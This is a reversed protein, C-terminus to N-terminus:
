RLHMESEYILPDGETRHVPDANGYFSGGLIGALEYCYVQCPVAALLPSLEEALEGSFAPLTYLWDAEEDSPEVSRDDTVLALPAGLHILSRQLEAARGSSAGAPAFMMVPTNPGVMSYQDHAYEEAEQAMAVLQPVEYLKRAAFRATAVNPGPGLMLHALRRDATASAHGPALEWVRELTSALLAPLGEINSRVAAARRTSPAWEEALAAGLEFLLAMNFVYSSTGPIPGLKPFNTVIVASSPEQGLGSSRDSTITVVAIGKRRAARVGETIRSVKGSQSLAVVLSNEPALEVEYRSFSMAPIAETPVGLLREWTLRVAMGADLSDGCGVLYVRSPPGHLRATASAAAARLGPLSDALLAPQRRIDDALVELEEREHM